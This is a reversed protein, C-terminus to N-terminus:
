VCRVQAVEPLAVAQQELVVRDMAMAMKADSMLGCLTAMLPVILVSIPLSAGVKVLPVVVVPM